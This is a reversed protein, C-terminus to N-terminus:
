SPLDDNQLPSWDTWNQATHYVRLLRLTEDAGGVLSYIVNYPTRLVAKEYTGPREGPRGIPRKALADITKRIRDATGQAADPNREALYDIAAGYQALATESWEIVRM